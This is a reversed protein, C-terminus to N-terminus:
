GAPLAPVQALLESSAVREVIGRLWATGAQVATDDLARIVRTYARGQQGAAQSLARDLEAPMEGHARPYDQLQRKIAPWNRALARQQAIRPDSRNQREILGASREMRAALGGLQQIRESLNLRVMERGAANLAQREADGEALRARAQGYWADLAALEGIFRVQSDFVRKISGYMEQSFAGRDRSSQGAPEGAHFGAAREGSVRAGAATISGYGLRAPGILSGNGGFFIRASRLFVGSSVDGLLSATAKDGRPTFNFHVAGSGIESFQDFAPGTGGAMLLDCWNVNSGLTAWPFLITMKADTHQASNADEEYLSGKRVRFALGCSIAPDDVEKGLFVADEAAGSGLVTGPGCTVRRLAVPGMTGIRSREAVWSDELVVPGAEGIVAGAGIRTRAGRLQTFPHLVAGPAIRELPVDDAIAVLDPRPVIVGRNGLVAVPDARSSSKAKRAM